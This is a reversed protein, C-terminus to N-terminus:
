WMIDLVEEILKWQNNTFIYRKDKKCKNMWEQPTNGREKATSCWDACMEIIYNDPMKTGDRSVLKTSDRNAFDIVDKHVFNNDWFEPHHPNDTIHKSTALDMEKTYPIDCPINDMKCKYLWNIIMYEKSIDGNLKDTDHDNRQQLLDNYTVNLEKALDSNTFKDLYHQVSKIHKYMRKKHYEEIKNEEYIQEFLKM